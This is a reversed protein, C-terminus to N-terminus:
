GLGGRDLALAMQTVERALARVRTAQDPSALARSLAHATTELAGRGLEDGRDGLLYRTAVVARSFRAEHDGTPMM